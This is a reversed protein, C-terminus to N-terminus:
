FQDKWQRLHTFTSLEDALQQNAWNAVSQALPSETCRLFPNVRKQEAISTPLSPLDIARMQAVTDSVEKLLPNNPEVANAFRLNAETYEHTCYVRTADPLTALKKLSALMQQPTGEFLRGCGAHFLTDGCFVAGHGFYAIHDLTHGPISMVEFSLQLPEIAIVDGQNVTQDVAAIAPNNPGIVTLQPFQSKLQVIGGTHDRHHHTILVSVLTLQHKQCYDIVPQADGPDIVVLNHKNHIAWIYNDQFARIPYITM